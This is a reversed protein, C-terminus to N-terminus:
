SFSFIPTGVQMSTLNNNVKPQGSWRRQYAVAETIFYFILYWWFLGLQMPNGSGSASNGATKRTTKPM